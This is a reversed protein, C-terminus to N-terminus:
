QEGFRVCVEEGAGRVVEPARRSCCWGFAFDRSLVPSHDGSTHGGSRHERGMVGAHYSLNSVAVGAGALSSGVKIFSGRAM